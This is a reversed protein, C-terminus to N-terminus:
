IFQIYVPKDLKIDKNTNTLLGRNEDREYVQVINSDRCAVLLYKGNPTIRFNRPHIGTKCYGVKAVTGDSSNIKFIAIGDEKLRNSAYLFAGDPSIHIDASGHANVSDAVVSQFEVLNGNDNDYTFAVVTGSLENILYVYKGNPAFTLHRPGSGEKLVIAPEILQLIDEGNNIKQASNVAFRYIRDKGLDCAFVFRGDLSPTLCHLHSPKGQETNFDIQQRLPKLLGKDGLPFTTVTGGGYNATAVWDDGSLIYCPSSSDTKAVNIIDLAGTKVDLSFATVASNQKDDESVAYLRTADNSVNMFSPNSISVESLPTVTGNNENFQFTYIGKSVGSTYTGVLMTLVSSNMNNDTKSPHQSCSGCSFLLFCLICFIIQNIRM